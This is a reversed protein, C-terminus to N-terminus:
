VCLLHNHRHCAPTYKGLLTLLTLQILSHVQSHKVGIFLFIIRSSILKREDVVLKKLHTIYSVTLEVNIESYEISKLM